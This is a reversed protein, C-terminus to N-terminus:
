NSGQLRGPVASWPTGRPSFEESADALTDFAADIARLSLSSAQRTPAPRWSKAERLAYLLLSDRRAANVSLSNALNVRGTGSTPPVLRLPTLTDSLSVPAVVAAPAAMSASSAPSEAQQVTSQLALAAQAAHADRWITYDGADVVMNHNGDALLETQSAYTSSWVLYDAQEVAGNGDYDGAIGSGVVLHATAPSSDQFFDNALYTFSDTGIFGPDPTYSVSGNADLQLQGHSPGSLLVAVVAGHEPDIDNALVNPETVLAAMPAQSAGQSPIDFRDDQSLVPGNVGSQLWVWSWWDGLLIVVL